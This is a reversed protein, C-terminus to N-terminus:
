EKSGNEEIERLLGILAKSLKTKFGSDGSLRESFFIISSAPVDFVESYKRILELSPVKKGKEIESLYSPSIQLRDALDASKMDNYVRLLRLAENIM